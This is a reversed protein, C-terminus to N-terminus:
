HGNGANRRDGGDDGRKGVAGIARPESERIAMHHRRGASANAREARVFAHVRADILRYELIATVGNPKRACRSQRTIDGVGERRGVAARRKRQATQGGDLLVVGIVQPEPRLSSDHLDKEVLALAGDSIGRSLHLKTQVISRVSQRTQWKDVARVPAGGFPLVSAQPEDRAPAQGEDIRSPQLRNGLACRYVDLCEDSVPRPVDGITSGNRQRSARCADLEFERGDIERRRHLM